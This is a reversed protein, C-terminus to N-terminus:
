GKTLAVLRQLVPAALIAIGIAGVVAGAILVPVTSPDYTVAPDHNTLAPSLFWTVSGGLGALFSGLTARGAGQAAQYLTSALAAALLLGLLPIELTLWGGVGGALVAVLPFGM